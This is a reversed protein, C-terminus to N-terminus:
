RVNYEEEANYGDDEALEEVHKLLGDLSVRVLDEDDLDPCLM